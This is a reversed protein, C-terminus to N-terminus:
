KKKNLLYVSLVFFITMLSLVLNIFGMINRAHSFIDGFADSLFLYSFSIISLFIGYPLFTFILSSSLKSKETLAFFMVMNSVCIYYTMFSSKHFTLVLM